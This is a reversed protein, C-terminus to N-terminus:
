NSTLHRKMQSEQAKSIYHSTYRFQQPWYRITQWVGRMFNQKVNEFHPKVVL